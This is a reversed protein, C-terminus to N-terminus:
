RQWFPFLPISYDLYFYMNVWYIFGCLAHLCLLLTAHWYYKKNTKLRYDELLVCSIIFLALVSLSAGWAFDGNYTGVRNYLLAFPLTGAVLSAAGFKMLWSHFFERRMLVYIFLPFALSLLLSGPICSSWEKWVLFPSFGIGTKVIEQMGQTAVPAIISIPVSTPVPVPVQFGKYVILYQLLLIVVVPICSCAFKVCTPFFIGKKYILEFLCYVVLAPLFFQALSPKFLCSISMIISLKIFKRYNAYGKKEEEELIKCTIIVAAVCFPKVAITSPNHWINPTIQGLYYKENVFTSYLPGAFMIALTYLYKKINSTYPILVEFGYLLLSSTGALFVANTLGLSLKDSNCIKYIFHFLIHWGPYAVGSPLGEVNGALLNKYYHPLNHAWDCHAYMDVKDNNAVYFNMYYLTMIIFISAVFVFKLGVSKRDIIKNEM